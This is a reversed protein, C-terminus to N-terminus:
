RNQVALQNARIKLSNVDTVLNDREKKVDELQKKLQQQREIIDQQRQKNGLHDINHRLETKDTESVWMALRKRSQNDLTQGTNNNILNGYTNVEADDKM